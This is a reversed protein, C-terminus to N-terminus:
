KPQPRNQHPQWIMGWKQEFKKRNELFIRQLEQNEFQTFSVGYFHHIFVDEACLLTFGAQRIKLALDDDEFMGVQYREDLGGLQHFLTQSILACYLALVKIEFSIGAYKEARKAAFYNIDTLDTYDIKVKAENGIANTVPGVMGASPNKYLHLLLRHLWGPTVITDNNLFVLYDGESSNAGMNNAVAFGLNKDNQIFTINKHKIKFEKIFEVSGDISANDVIILEYNPYETNKVISELCIRSYELKNYTVVIVSIKPFLGILKPDLSEARRNWTNSRAFEYRLTLLEDTKKELLCENIAHEWEGPTGALHIYEQYLSIENLRTAVVPKGASLFEYLKIPNTAETLPNQIFPIICVDFFSLYEPLSEYSQEGLLFVNQKGHLPKLDALDTSGILIFTWEPHAAALDGVLQTDFWDAIAGYYGIIPRKYLNYKESNIIGAARHFIEFDTGNQILVSNKTQDGYKDYLPHSSFLVLDSKKFLLYEDQIALESKYSFGSYEDMCDYVLKWGFEESLKIAVQLWFPLDVKMIASHINFAAILSVINARIAVVNNKSLASNFLITDNGIPLKVLLVKDQVKKIFITKGRNFSAQIYFVRHGLNALQIALQQPRAMRFEWDIFPFIIIDPKIPPNTTSQRLIAESIEPNLELYDNSSLSDLSAKRRTKKGKWARKNRIEIRQFLARSGQNKLISLSAILNYLFRNIISNEPILRDVWSAMRIVPKQKFKTFQYHLEIYEDFSPNVPSLIGQQSPISTTATSPTNNKNNGPSKHPIDNSGVSNSESGTQVSKSNIQKSNNAM